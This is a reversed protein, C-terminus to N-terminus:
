ENLLAQVQEPSLEGTDVPPPEPMPEPPPAVEAVPEAAPPPPPPTEARPGQSTLAELDKATLIRMTRGRKQDLDGLKLPMFNANQPEVAPLSTVMNKDQTSKETALNVRVGSDGAEMREAAISVGETPLDRVIRQPEAVGSVRMAMLASEAIVAIYETASTYVRYRVKGADAMTARRVALAEMGQGNTKM